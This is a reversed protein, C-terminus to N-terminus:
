YLWPMQWPSGAGQGNKGFHMQPHRTGADGGPEKGARYRGKEANIYAQKFAPHADCEVTTVFRTAMQVGDLGMDLWKRAEAGTYVGGAM